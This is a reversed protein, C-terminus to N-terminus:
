KCPLLWKSSPSVWFKTTNWDNRLFKFFNRISLIETPFDSISDSSLILGGVVDLM